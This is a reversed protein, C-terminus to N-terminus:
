DAAETWCHHHENSVHVAFYMRWEGSGDALDCWHPNRYFRILIEGSTLSVATFPRLLPCEVFSVDPFEDNRYGYIPIGFATEGYTTRDLRFEPSVEPDVLNTSILVVDPEGGSARGRVIGCEIFERGVKGGSVARRVRNTEFIERMGLSGSEVGAGYYLVHEAFDVMNNLQMTRAFEWPSAIGGPLVDPWEDSSAVSSPNAVPFAAHQILNRRVKICDRWGTSRERYVGVVAQRIADETARDRSSHMDFDVRSIPVAPFRTLVPCRNPFWNRVAAMMDNPVHTPDPISAPGPPRTTEPAPIAVSARPRGITALAGAMWGFFKRRIM